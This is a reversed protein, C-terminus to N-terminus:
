PRGGQPSWFELLVLLSRRPVILLSTLPCVPTTWSPCPASPVKQPPHSMWTSIKFTLGLYGDPLHCSCSIHHHCPPLWIWLVSLYEVPCFSLIFPQSPTHQTILSPTTRECQNPSNHVRCYLSLRILQKRDYSTLSQWWFVKWIVPRVKKLTGIKSMTNWLWAAAQCRYHWPNTQLGTYMFWYSQPESVPTWCLQGCSSTM